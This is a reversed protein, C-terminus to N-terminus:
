PLRELCRELSDRWHPIQQGFTAKWRHKSMVSYGPREAPTPYAHTDIPEIRCPLGRLRMVAHAVDYWSTVGENSFHFIGTASPLGSEVASIMTLMAKALDPAYTLTGIQDAVVRLVSREAGLRLMTKVFNHGYESYLWSTRIVMSGEPYRQLVAADGALKSRAYVGRPHTADDERLPRNLGNHYVYDSSIHLLRIGQRRCHDALLEPGLANVQFARGEDSEAQDVATYAAANICWGGERESFQASLSGADTIDLASSTFFDLELEPFYEVEARLAKGLQGSAGTVLVKVKKM